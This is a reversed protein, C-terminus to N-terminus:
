FVLLLWGVLGSWFLFLLLYVYFKLWIVLEGVMRFVILNVMFGLVFGFGGINVVYVVLVSFFLYNFLLIIVLVNSIVQFLGIGLIYVM